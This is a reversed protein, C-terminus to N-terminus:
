YQGVYPQIKLTHKIWDAFWFETFTNQEGEELASTHNYCSTNGDVSAATGSSLVM